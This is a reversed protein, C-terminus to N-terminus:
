KEEIIAATHIHVVDFEFETYGDATKFNLPKNKPMETIKKINDKKIRVKIPRIKPVENYGRVSLINAPCATNVLNVHINGDKKMVNLDAYVSGSIGVLPEYGTNEAIREAFKRIATTINKSYTGAFDMCMFTINGKGIKKIVVCPLRNDTFYNDLYVNASTDFEGEFTAFDCEVAALTGEGEVFVLKQVEDSKDLGAYETFYKASKLDVILRGGNEVYEELMKISEDSLNNATGLVVLPYEKLDNPESEFIIETSYGIDLMFNNRAQLAGYCTLNCNYLLNNEKENREFPYIIGVQHIPKAKHNFERERCFKAVREWIPIVWPQVTRGGGYMINFFQFGGDLSIVM